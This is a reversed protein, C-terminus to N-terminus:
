AGESCNGSITITYTTNPEVLLNFDLTSVDGVNIGNQSHTYTVVLDETGVVEIHLPNETDTASCDLSLSLIIHTESETVPIFDRIDFPVDELSVEVDGVFLTGTMGTADGAFRVKSELINHNETDENDDDGEGSNLCCPDVWSIEMYKVGNTPTLRDKRKILSYDIPHGFEDVQVYYRFSCTCPIEVPDEQCCIPVIEKWHGPPKSKRRVNSGLIPKSKQDLKYFYRLKM